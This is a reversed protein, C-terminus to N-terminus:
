AVEPPRVSLLAERVIRARTEVGHAQSAFRQASRDHGRDRARDALRRLLAANEELARLAIWLADEVGKSQASALTDQSFAHGTRCRYRMLSGDKREFLSGHCEPCTFQSPIASWDDPDPTGRDMEVVDLDDSQESVDREPFPQSVLLDVRRVLEGALAPVDGVFDVEVHELASTPMGDFMADEPDQVIAAGGHQKIAYLGATGDDLTGSLIVGVTHAGHARAASRFLPDIAPRHGNENPGNVARVTHRKILLHRGPPAVYIRGHLLPEDDIAHTAKLPGERSLIAPLASPVQEPIHLAVAVAAELDGPLSKVLQTLSSVGGASAGVVIVNCRSMHTTVALFRGSRRCQNSRKEGPVTTRKPSCSLTRAEVCSVQSSDSLDGRLHKRRLPIPSGGCGRYMRHAGHVPPM